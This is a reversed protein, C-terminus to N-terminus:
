TDYYIEKLFLGHAPATPGAAARNKAKLIAHFENVTRKNKGVELITGVLNRVMHRLFGDGTIEFQYVNKDTEKLRASLITRFAGRGTKKAKDRSGSAEFSSFDHTGCIIQLCNKMAELDLKFPVHLAYLRETPLQVHGTHIQYFYTKAKASYRAHFDASEDTVGTIQIAKPLLSNLGNQLSQCPIQSQSNFHANMSLAHVGADTRGAGHLTVENNTIISLKEELVSQISTSNNQKQWGCYNTGDYAITLKITRNEM